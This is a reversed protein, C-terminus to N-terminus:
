IVDFHRLANALGDCDIDDTVYDAVEKLPEVANGMAVSCGAYELMTIDNEGDGFAMIENRNLGYYSCIQQIGIEKGGNDPIIDVGYPNWRVISSHRLRRRLKQAMAEDIYPTIQYVDNSRAREPDSVPPLESHIDRQVKKVYDSIYNIYFTKEELFLCAFPEEISSNLITEVDECDLPNKYIIGDSNYCYQGNITIAADFMDLDVPLDGLECIHRGSSIISLIGKERLIRLAHLTSEPITGSTHSLLTGDIDFFAAKIM